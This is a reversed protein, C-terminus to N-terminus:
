SLLLGQVNPPIFHYAGSSVFMATQLYQACLHSDPPGDTIFDNLYHQLDPIKYNNVLIWQVPDAVSSFINPASRLSFPLALDVYFKGCGEMGLLFCDRPHVAINCYAVEVDFKALLAGKGSCSAMCIIHDITVYHLTFDDPNIRDNVSAGDPSLDVILQWKGPQGKKPIVGFSSIHLSALPATKFPGAVWRM